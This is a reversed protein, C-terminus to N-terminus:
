EKDPYFAIVKTIDFFHTDSHTTKLVIWDFCVEVLQGPMSSVFGAMLLNIKKGVFPELAEQM